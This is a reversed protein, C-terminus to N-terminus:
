FLEKIRGEVLPSKRVGNAVIALEEESMKGSLRSVKGESIMRYFEAAGIEIIDNCNVYTQSDRFKNTKNSPFIPYTDIPYGRVEALKM